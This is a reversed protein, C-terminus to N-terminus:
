WIKHIGGGRKKLFKEGSPNADPSEEKGRKAADDDAKSRAGTMVVTGNQILFGSTRRDTEAKDIDIALEQMRAVIQKAPRSLKKGLEDPSLKGAHGKLFYDEVETWNRTRAM